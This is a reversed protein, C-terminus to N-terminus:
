LLMCRKEMTHVVLYYIVMPMQEGLYTYDGKAFVDSYQNRFSTLKKYHALMPNNDIKTWDFNPRNGYEPWNNPGSLGIEEGYYIVPQGKSTLQLSSGIYFKSIDNKNTFLFGDEDHSSLFQGFMRQTTIAQNREQLLQNATTIKGDVLNQALHKFNFDLLSDMGGNGLYGLDDKHSAGFAEGIMKFQPNRKIAELKLLQWTTNDVHKVTDVRFYSLSNGKATTSKTIWDSQWKVLQKRVNPDETKFDPLGALMTTQDTTGSKERLMGKFKSEMGYGPHNVVVDAMIKIGRSEAEDILTHFEELTGLHPNLKEFDSAWYGHYAYYAGKTTDSATADEKINEVIPTIWVTNIGLSKLYDLKATVGKFDGGQYTGMPNGDAHKAYDIGYPDNNAKNGDNFRDTVMFYIMSEDWDKVDKTDHGTITVAANVTYTGGTDDVITVPIQYDGPAVTHNVGLAVQMLDPSITYNKPGGLASVDARAFRIKSTSNNKVDLTLVANESYNFAKNVSPQLKIDLTGPHEEPIKETTDTTHYYPNNFYGATGEQIFIQNDIDFDVFTMDKTQIGSSSRQNLLFGLSKPNTTLPIDVYAGYRGTKTSTFALADMPWNKPPNVGDGWYWLGWPEYVGSSTKFNVRLFGKPVEKPNYYYIKNEQTLWVENVAPDYLDILVDKTENGGSRNNILFGVNKANTALEIDVYAGFSDVKKSDFWTGNPWNTPPTKM